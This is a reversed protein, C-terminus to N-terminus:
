SVNVTASKRISYGCLFSSMVLELNKQSFTRYKFSYLLLQCFAMLNGSPADPSVGAEALLKAVSLILCAEENLSEYKVDDVNSKLQIPKYRLLWFVTYAYIKDVNVREINEFNKIREIDEFYSLIAYGLLKKNIYAYEEAEKAIVIARLERYLHEYRSVIPYGKECILDSYNNMRIKSDVNTM